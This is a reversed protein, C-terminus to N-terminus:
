RQPAWRVSAKMEETAKGAQPDSESQSVPPANLRDVIAQAQEDSVGWLPIIQACGGLKQWWAQPLKLAPCRYIISRTLSFQGGLEDAAPRRDPAPPNSPFTMLLQTAYQPTGLRFTSFDIDPM